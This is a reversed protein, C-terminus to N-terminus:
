DATQRNDSPGEIQLLKTELEGVKRNFNMLQTVYEQREVAFGEREEKLQNIYFDKARNTIKLDLLEAELTKLKGTDAPAEAATASKPTEAAHPLKGFGETESRHKEAKAREEAIAVDVSEPTIFYKRENPDFYADLKAAGLANRQCWNV